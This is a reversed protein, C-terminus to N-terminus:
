GRIYIALVSIQWRSCFSLPPVGVAVVSTLVSPVCTHTHTWCAPVPAGCIRSGACFCASGSVIPSVVGFFLAAHKIWGCFHGVRCGGREWQGWDTLRSPLSPHSPNPAGRERGLPFSFALDTVKLCLIRSPVPAQHGWLVCRQQGTPAAVQFIRLGWLCPLTSPQPAEAQM